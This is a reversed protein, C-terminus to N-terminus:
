HFIRHAFHFKYFCGLRKLTNEPCKVMWPMMKEKGSKSFKDLREEVQKPLYRLVWLDKIINDPHVKYDLIFYLIKFM